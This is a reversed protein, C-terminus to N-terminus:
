PGRCDQRLPGNLTGMRPDDQRRLLLPPIQRLPPLRPCPGLQRARGPPIPCLLSHTPYLLFSTLPSVLNRIMQGTQTDWLKITKDRAGSAVFLGQRKSRDSNQSSTLPPNILSLPPYCTCPHWGIRSNCPICSNARISRRPCRQRTRETRVEDRGNIPGVVQSDAYPLTM